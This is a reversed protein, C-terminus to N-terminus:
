VPQRRSRETVAERLAVRLGAPATSRTGSGAAGRQHRFRPLPEPWRGTWGAGGGAHRVACRPIWRWLMADLDV